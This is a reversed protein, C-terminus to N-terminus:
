NRSYHFPISKHGDLRKSSYGRGCKMVCDLMLEEREEGDITFKYGPIRGFFYLRRLRGWMEAAKVESYTGIFEKNLFLRYRDVWVYENVNYMKEITPWGIALEGRERLFREFVAVNPLNDVTKM